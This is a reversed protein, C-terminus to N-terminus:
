PSVPGVAIPLWLIQIYRTRNVRGWGYLGGLVTSGDALVYPVDGLFVGPPAAVRLNADGVPSAPWVLRTRMYGLPTGIVEFRKAAVPEGTEVDSLTIQRWAHVYDGVYGGLGWGEVTGLFQRSDKIAANCALVDAHRHGPLGWTWPHGIRRVMVGETPAFSVGHVDVYEGDMRDNLIRALRRVQRRAEEREPLPMLALGAWDGLEERKLPGGGRSRLFTCCGAQMLALAAAASAVAKVMATRTM